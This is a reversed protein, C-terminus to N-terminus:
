DSIKQFYKNKSNRPGGEAFKPTFIFGFSSGLLGLIPVPEENLVIEAYVGGEWFPRKEMLIRIFHQNKGAYFHQQM